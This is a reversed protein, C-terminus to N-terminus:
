KEANVLKMAYQAIERISASCTGDEIIDQMADMLIMRKCHEDYAANVVTNFQTEIRDIVQLNDMNKGKTLGYRTSGRRATGCRV